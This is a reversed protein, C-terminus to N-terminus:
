PAAAFIKFVLECSIIGNSANTASFNELRTLREGDIIERIFNLLSIYDTELSLNVAQTQFKEESIIEGMHVSVLRVKNVDAAQYLAGIFKDQALTPPLFIKAADVELEKAEVFASLNEHRAKLELIEREVERLRRTELEMNLIERQTPEYIFQHWGFSFIILVSFVIVPLFRKDDM